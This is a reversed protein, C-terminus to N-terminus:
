HVHPEEWCIARFNCRQCNEAYMTVRFDDVNLVTYKKGETLCAIEYASGFMFEEAEIVQEEALSHKRVIKTLLQVEYLAIEQPQTKFGVPFDRHPKCRSLAIAYIALQLWADRDGFTHVKWDIIAPPADSFFAIADPFARVLVDDMLVFQLPPQSVIHNSSKLIRKIDDLSFLNALAHEVECWAQDIEHEPLEGEYEMAHFVAFDGGAKSVQLSLDTIPHHRAYALQQDFLGRACNIAKSLNISIGRNLNPILTESIVKDVINGRWASISQLKSLLYARKRLPDKANANAVINKFFWQRQCHQFSRSASYSWRM